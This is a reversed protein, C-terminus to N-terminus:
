TSFIHYFSIVICGWLLVVSEERALKIMIRDMSNEKIRGCAAKACLPSPRRRCTFAWLPRTLKMAGSFPRAM